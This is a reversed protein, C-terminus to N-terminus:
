GAPLTIAFVAGGQPSNEATIMGNHNKIINHCVSLGIGMGMTKKQTYFPDFILALDNESIGPGTDVVKIIIKDKECYSTLTIEGSCPVQNIQESAPRSAETISEVANNILNLFVQGLHQPVVPIDPIKSSLNLNIRIKQKKLYSRLLSATTIIIQNVNVSQKNAMDPRNFDLLNKVIDRIRKFNNKILQLDNILDKDKKHSEQISYVFSTIGQLPSNIEHAISAALQGTAALRESQMLQEQLYKTQTMDRLIVISGSPKSEQDSYISASIHIDLLRGNKTQRRTEFSRIKEGKLMRKLAAGTEPQNKQPVFDIRNGIIENRSWGFTQEFAANVYSAKGEIDYVVISDPFAELSLRYREESERLAQEAKKRETINRTTGIIGTPQGDTGYLFKTQLETWVTSGNKCTQELELSLSKEPDRQGKSHLELEQAFINMAKDFSASTMSDKLSQTMVEQACFGRLREVSPSVYTFRMNMDMTWLVDSLNEALLRYREEAQKHEEIKGQLQENAKALATTREEVLQELRIQLARLNLHTQV